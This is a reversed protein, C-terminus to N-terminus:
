LRSGLWSVSHLGCAGVPLGLLRRATLALAPPLPSSIVPMTVTLAAVPAFHAAKV